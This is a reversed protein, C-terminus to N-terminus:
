STSSSHTSLSPRRNPPPSWQTALQWLFHGLFLSQPRSRHNGSRRRRRRRWWRGRWRWNECRPRCFGPLFAPGGLSISLSPLPFLLPLPPSITTPSLGNLSRHTPHSSNYLLHGILASLHLFFVFDCTSSTHSHPLFYSSRSVSPLFLVHLFNALSPHSQITHFRLVDVNVFVFFGNSHTCTFTIASAFYTLILFYLVLSLPNSSGCLFSLSLCLSSFSLSLWILWSTSAHRVGISIAAYSFPCLSLPSSPSNFSKLDFHESGRPILLLPHKDPSLHWSFDALWILWEKGILVFWTLYQSLTETFTDAQTASLLDFVVPFCFFFVRWFYRLLVFQLVLRNNSVHLFFLYFPLGCLAWLWITFALYLHM